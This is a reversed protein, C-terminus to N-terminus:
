VFTNETKEIVGYAKRFPMNKEYLEHAYKAKKLFYDRSEDKKM